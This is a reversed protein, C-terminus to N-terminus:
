KHIHWSFLNICSKIQIQLCFVKEGTEDVFELWVSFTKGTLVELGVKMVKTYNSFLKNSIIQSIEKNTVAAFWSVMAQLKHSNPM